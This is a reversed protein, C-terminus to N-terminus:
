RRPISKKQYESVTLEKWKNNDWQYFIQADIEGKSNYITKTKSLSGRFREIETEELLKGTSTYTYFIEQKFRIQSSPRETMWYNIKKDARFKKHFVQTLKWKQNVVAFVRKLTDNGENDYYISDLL